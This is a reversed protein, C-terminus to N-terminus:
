EDVISREENSASSERFFLYQRNAEIRYIGDKQKRYPLLCYANSETDVLYVSLYGDVPSLFSLYLDDGDRFDSSASKEDIGNRLISTQIDILATKIERAKGKISVKIVLIGQEYTVSVVPDGITELWEGKVDSGGLSLFDLSSKGDGNEIRTTNVQSVITGFADALAQIKARDIAIRKAEEITVNEPAYYIYEAEVTKLNDSIVPLSFTLFLLLFFYKM